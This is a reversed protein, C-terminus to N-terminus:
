SLSLNRDFATTAFKLANAFFFPAPIRHHIAMRQWTARFPELIRDALRPRPLPPADTLTDGSRGALPSPYGAAKAWDVFDIGRGRQKAAAESYKYYRELLDLRVWDYGDHTAYDAAAHPPLSAPFVRLRADNLSGVSFEYGGWVMVSAILVGATVQLIRKPLANQHPSLLRTVVLATAAMPFFVPFSFKSLLALGVAGATALGSGVGGGLKQM